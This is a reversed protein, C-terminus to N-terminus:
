FKKRTTKRRDIKEDFFRDVSKRRFFQTRGITYESRPFEKQYTFQRVASLSYNTRAAIAHATEFDEFNFM